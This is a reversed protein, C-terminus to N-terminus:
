CHVTPVVACDETILEGSYDSGTTLTLGAIITRPSSRAISQASLSDDGPVNDLVARLQRLSDPSIQLRAEWANGDPVVTLGTHYVVKGRAVPTPSEKPRAIDGFTFVASALLTFVAAGFVLTSKM